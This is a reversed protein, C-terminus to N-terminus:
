LKKKILFHMRQEFPQFGYTEYFKYAAINKNFVGLRIEDIGRTQCLDLLTDMLKKGIGKSRMNQGVGFNSVHVINPAQLHYSFKQEALLYGCIKNDEEAVLAIIKDDSLSQLLGARELEDNQEAFYGDLIDIHYQRIERLLQLVQPLDQESFHRIIM